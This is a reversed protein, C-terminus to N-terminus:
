EEPVSKALLSQPWADDLALNVVIQWDMGEGNLYASVRDLLTELDNDSLSAPAKMLREDLMGIVDDISVRFLVDDPRYGLAAFRQQLPSTPVPSTTQM